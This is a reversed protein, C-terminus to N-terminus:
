TIVARSKRNNLEFTIYQLDDIYYSAFVFDQQEDRYM